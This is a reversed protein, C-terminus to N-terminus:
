RGSVAREIDTFTTTSGLGMAAAAIPAARGPLVPEVLATFKALLQEDSLPRERSGQAILVVNDVTSGDAFEVSVTASERGCAADPALRSRGRLEDPFEHAFKHLM